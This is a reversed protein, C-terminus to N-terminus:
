VEEGLTAYVTVVPINIRFLAFATIIWDARTESFIVAQFSVMEFSLSDTFSMLKLILSSSVRCDNGVINKLGSAIRGVKEHVEAASLWNYEGM